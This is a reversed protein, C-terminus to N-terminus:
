IILLTVYLRSQVPFYAQHTCYLLYHHLQRTAPTDVPLHSCPPQLPPTNVSRTNCSYYLREVVLGCCWHEWCSSLIGALSQSWRGPPSGEPSQWTWCHHTGWPQWSYQLDWPSFNLNVSIPFLPTSVKNLINGKLFYYYCSFTTCMLVYDFDM